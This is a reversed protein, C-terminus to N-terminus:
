GSYKREKKQIPFIIWYKWKGFFEMDDCFGRFVITFSAASCIRVFNIRALDDENQM